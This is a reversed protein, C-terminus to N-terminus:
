KRRSSPKPAFREIPTGIWWNPGLEVKLFIDLEELLEAQNVLLGNGMYEVTEFYGRISGAGARCPSGDPNELTEPPWECQAASLVARHDNVPIPVTLRNNAIGAPHHNDLPSNGFEIRLCNACVKPRSGPILALPRREGCVTCHAAEGVRRAAQVERGFSAIPDRQPKKRM